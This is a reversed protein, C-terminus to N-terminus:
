RMKIAKGPSSEAGQQSATAIARRLYHYVIPELDEFMADTLQQIVDPSANPLQDRIYQNIEEKSLMKDRRKTRHDNDGSSRDQLEDLADPAIIISSRRCIRCEEIIEASSMQRNRGCGWISHLNGAAGMNMGDPDGGLVGIARSIGGLGALM